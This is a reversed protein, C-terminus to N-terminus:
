DRVRQPQGFGLGVVRAALEPAMAADVPGVRLRWIKQGNVDADQLRATGISAGQLMALAQRANQANAFSAVQLTVLALHGEVPPAKLDSPNVTAPLPMAAPAPATGAQPAAQASPPVVNNLLPTSGPQILSKTGNANLAVQERM